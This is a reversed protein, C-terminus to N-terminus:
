AFGKPTTPVRPANGFTPIAAAPAVSAKRLLGGGNGSIKRVARDALATGMRASVAENMGQFTTARAARGFDERAQELWNFFAQAKQPEKEWKDAFNEFPDTPNPIVFRSGDHRIHQDMRGLISFLAGAITDEEGYAHGALTTIIVSIPKLDPDRAFMNDRHRKLLMVAAQLPTRVRYDPLKEVSATVGRRKLSEALMQKRRALVVAMRSKFWEGYGKPNSRPWDPTRVMYTPVERDTIAIATDAWRADFQAKELLLRQEAGNPLAPVIDMHFQAGNAYELIWCRRGERVPKTMGKADHYAKIEGGLLLKLEFQSLDRKALRKLECVSDVDYEEADNIPRIATGLRFSGQVYVAPDFDRVKSEDRHFWDGLSKYSTEAQEYRSEPIALEDVLAQLFQEVQMDADAM